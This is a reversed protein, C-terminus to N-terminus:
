TKTTRETQKTFIIGNYTDGTNRITLTKFM